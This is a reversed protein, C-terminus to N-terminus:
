KGKKTHKHGWYFNGDKICVPRYEGSKLKFKERPGSMTIIKGGSKRCKEFAQPM